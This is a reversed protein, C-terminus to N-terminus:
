KYSHNDSTTCYLCKLRISDIVDCVVRSTTREAPGTAGSPVFHTDVRPSVECARCVVKRSHISSTRVCADNDIFPTSGAEQAGNAWRDAVSLTM